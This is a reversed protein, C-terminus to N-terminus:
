PKDTDLRIRSIVKGSTLDIVAIEQGASSTLHLALRDGDLAMSSVTAGAPIALEAESRPHVNASATAPKGSASDKGQGLNSAQYAIVGIVFIFGGVLLVGMAIVVIKLIRVGRPSFVTGPLPTNDSENKVAM